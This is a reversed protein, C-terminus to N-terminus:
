AGALERLEALLEARFDDPGVVAVRTGLVYVRARFAARHTVTYTLEVTGADPDAMATDCTLLWREVDPVFDAPVRLVVAAPEDVEWLLPHLAPRGVQPAPAASGPPDLAPGGMRNVAFHKVRTDGEEVGSLYWQHSQFSVTAPHVLRDTGKYSFRIRSGHQVAQLARSLASSDVHPVVKSTVEVPLSAPEVGLATALDARDALAVARQLAAVQAPSLRLRLRNDGSVMRYRAPEGPGAVNDIQWGQERLHKLDKALQTGPDADGYDAVAVLRDRTAGAPGAQELVAMIRVLRTMPKLQDRGAM